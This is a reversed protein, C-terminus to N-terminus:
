RGAEPEVVVFTEGKHQLLDLHFAHGCEGWFHVRVADRRPSPNEQTCVRACSGPVLRHTPGDETRDFVEVQGHHTYNDGCVPCAVQWAPSEWAETREIASM